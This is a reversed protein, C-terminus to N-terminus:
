AEDVQRKLYAVAAPLQEKLNEWRCEISMRGRYNVKRLARLFPRFDDGDSGPPTRKEKEAIHCHHIYKGYKEIADPGEGERLLHYIDALLKFSPHGVAEVM